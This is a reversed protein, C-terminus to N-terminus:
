KIEIKNSLNNENIFSLVLEKEENSLDTITITAKKNREREIRMKAINELVIAKCKGCDIYDLIHSHACWQATMTSKAVYGCLSKGSEFGHVKSRIATGEKAFYYTGTM